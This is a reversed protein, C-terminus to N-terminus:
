TKPTEDMLDETKFDEPGVLGGTVRNIKKTLKLSPIKKEKVLKNVHSKSIGVLKGFDVQTIKKKSLYEKLHM